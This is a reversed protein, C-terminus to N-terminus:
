KTRSLRKHNARVVKSYKAISSRSVSDLSKGSALAFSNEIALSSATQIKESIMLHAEAMAKSDGTALHMMRMGIVMNSEFALRSLDMFMSFPSSQTM